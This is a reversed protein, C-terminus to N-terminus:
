IFRKALDDDGEEFLDGAVSFDLGMYDIAIETPMGSDEDDSNSASYYVKEDDSEKYLVLAFESDFDCVGSSFGIQFSSGPIGGLISAMRILADYLQNEFQLDIIERSAYFDNRPSICLQFGYEDFNKEIQLSFSDDISQIARESDRVSVLFEQVLIKAKPLANSPLEVEAEIKYTYYHSMVM